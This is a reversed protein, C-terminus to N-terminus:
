LQPDTDVATETPQADSSDAEASEESEPEEFVVVPQIPSHLPSLLLAGAGIMTLLTAANMDGAQYLLQPACLLVTLEMFLASLPLMAWVRQFIPHRRKYKSSSTLYLGMLLLSLSIIEYGFTVTDPHNSNVRYFNMLHICLYFIPLLALPGSSPHDESRLFRLGCAAAALLPAITLLLSLIMWDQMLQPLRLLATLFFCLVAVLHPYEKVSAADSRKNQYRGNGVYLWAAALCILFVLLIAVSFLLWLPASFIRPLAMGAGALVCCCLSLLFSTKERSM